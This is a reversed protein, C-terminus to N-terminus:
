FMIHLVLCSDLTTLLVDSFLLLLCQGIILGHFAVEELDVDGHCNSGGAFLLLRPLFYNCLM